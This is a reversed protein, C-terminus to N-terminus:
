GDEGGENLASVAVVKDDSHLGEVAPSFYLRWGGAAFLLVSCHRAAPGNIRNILLTMTRAQVDMFPAFIGGSEEPQQDPLIATTEEKLAKIPAAVGGDTPVLKARVAGPANSGPVWRLFKPHSTSLTM